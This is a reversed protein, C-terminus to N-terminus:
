TGTLEHQYPAVGRWRAVFLKRSAWNWPLGFGYGQPPGTLAAVAALARGRGRRRRPSCRHRPRASSWSRTRSRREICMMMRIEGTIQFEEVAKMQKEVAEDLKGEQLQKRHNEEEAAKAAEEAAEQATGLM